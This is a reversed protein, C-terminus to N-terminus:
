SVRPIFKALLLFSVFLIFNLKWLFPIPNAKILVIVFYPPSYWRLNATDLSKLTKIVNLANVPALNPCIVFSIQWHYQHSTLKTINDCNVLLLMVVAYFLIVFARLVPMNSLAIKQFVRWIVITKDEKNLNGRRGSIGSRNLKIQKRKTYNRVWIQRLSTSKAILSFKAESLISKKM